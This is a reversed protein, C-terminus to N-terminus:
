KVALLDDCVRACAPLRGYKQQMTRALAIARVVHRTAAPSTTKFLVGPPHEVVTPDRKAAERAAQCEALLQVCEAQLVLAAQTPPAEGAALREFAGALGVLLCALPLRM